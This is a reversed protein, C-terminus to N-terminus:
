FRLRRLKMGAAALGAAVLSFANATFCARCVNCCATAVPAHEAYRAAAQTARGTWIDKV